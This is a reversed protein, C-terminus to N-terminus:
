RCQPCHLGARRRAEGEKMPDVIILTTIVDILLITTLGARESAQRSGRASAGIGIGIGRGM